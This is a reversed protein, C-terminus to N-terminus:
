RPLDLGLLARCRADNRPSGVGAPFGSRRVCGQCRWAGMRSLLGPIYLDGSRGCLVRGWVAEGDFVIQGMMDATAEDPAHLRGGAGLVLWDLATLRAFSDRGVDTGPAASM